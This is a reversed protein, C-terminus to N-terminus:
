GAGDSFCGKRRCVPCREPPDNMLDEVAKTLAILQDFLLALDEMLVQKGEDDAEGAVAMAGVAKWLGLKVAEPDYMRFFVRLVQDPTMLGFDRLDVM